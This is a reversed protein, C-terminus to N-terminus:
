ARVMLERLRNVARHLLSKVTGEPKELIFAIDKLDKDEFYRLAIVEQYKSPLKSLCAQLDIYDENKKLEIYAAADGDCLMGSYTGQKIKSWRFGIRSQKKYWDIIEHNTIRYLWHSISIGEWRYNRIGRLAKFFVESTIDRAAEPDATRRFAYGFIPSYYIDFLEGFAESSTKAREILTREQELM